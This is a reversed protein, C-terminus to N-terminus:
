YEAKVTTATARFSFYEFPIDRIGRDYIFKDNEIIDAAVGGGTWDKELKRRRMIRYALGRTTYAFCKFLLKQFEMNEMRLAILKRAYM